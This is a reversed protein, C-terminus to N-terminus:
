YFEVRFLSNIFHKEMFSAEALQSDGQRATSEAIMTKLFQPSMEQMFDEDEEDASQPKDRRPPQKDNHKTEEILNITQKKQDSILHGNKLQIKAM